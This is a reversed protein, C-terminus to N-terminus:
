GGGGTGFTGLSVGEIPTLPMWDPGSARNFDSLKATPDTMRAAGPRGARECIRQIIIAKANKPVAM